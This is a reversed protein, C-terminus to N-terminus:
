HTDAGSAGQPRVNGTKALRYRIAGRRYVVPIM